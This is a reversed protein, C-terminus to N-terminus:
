VDEDQHHRPEEVVDDRDVEDGDADDPEPQEALAHATVTVQFCDKVHNTKIRAEIWEGGGVRGGHDGSGTPPPSAAGAARPWGTTKRSPRGSPRLLTAAGGFPWADVISGLSRGDRVVVPGHSHFWKIGGHAWDAM